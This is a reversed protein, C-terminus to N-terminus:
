LSAPYTQDSRIVKFIRWGDIQKHLKTDPAGGEWIEPHYKYINNQNRDNSRPQPIIIWDAHNQYNRVIELFDIDSSIIYREPHKSFLPIAFGQDTELLINGPLDDMFSAVRKQDLYTRSFDLQTKNDVIKRFFTVEENGLGPESIAFLTTYIGLTMFSVALVGLYLHKRALYFGILAGMPITYIYFRLWGFSDGNWLQFVHFILVSLFPITLFSLLFLNRPHHITYKNLPIGILPVLWLIPTLYLSRNLVYKLSNIVSHYSNELLGPTTKLAETYTSNSFPNNMFYFPNKMIVWNALLWLLVSYVFILIYQFATSEIRKIHFRRFFMYLTIIFLSGFFAPVAEYRSWFSFAIAGGGLLLDTQNQYYFYKVLFWSSLNLCMVFIMESTGLASYLVILPNLGFFITILLPLINKIDNVLLTGIKYIILVSLAGFFSTVLPGALTTLGFPKLLVILPIQAFSPFPQWVFGIAALHPDRGFTTFFALATRSIADNHYIQLVVNLYIAVLTYFILFGLFLLWSTTLLRM